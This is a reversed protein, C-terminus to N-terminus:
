WRIATVRRGWSAMWKVNKKDQSGLLRIGAHALDHAIATGGVHALRRAPDAAVPAVFLMLCLPIPIENTSTVKLNDFYVGFQADRFEPAAKNIPLPDIKDILWQAPESRSHAV